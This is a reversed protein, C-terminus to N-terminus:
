IARVAGDFDGCGRAVSRGCGYGDGYDAIDGGGDADGCNCFDIGSGYGGGVYGFGNRDGPEADGGSGYVARYPGGDWERERGHGGL